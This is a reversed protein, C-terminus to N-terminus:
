NIECGIEIVDGIEYQKYYEVSNAEANRFGRKTNSFSNPSKEM